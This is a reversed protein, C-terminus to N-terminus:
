KYIPAGTQPDYGVIEKPAEFIPKGTQPDFGVPQQNYGGFKPKSENSVANGILAIAIAAISLVFGMWFGFALEDFAENSLASFFLSIHYTCFYGLGLYSLKSDKTVGTLQLVFAVIAVILEIIIIISTGIAKSKDFYEWLSYSEGYFSYFPLFLCIILLVSLCLGVISFVKRASMM